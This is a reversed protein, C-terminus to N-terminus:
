TKRAGSNARRRITSRIGGGRAVRVGLAHGAGGDVGQGKGIVLWTGEQLTSFAQASPVTGEARNQLSEEFRVQVEPRTRQFYQNVLRHIYAAVQDQYPGRNPAVMFSSRPARNAGRLVHFDSVVPSNEAMETLNAGEIDMTPVNPNGTPNEISEVLWAAAQNTCGM